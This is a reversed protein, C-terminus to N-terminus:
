YRMNIARSRDICFSSFFLVHVSPILMVTVLGEVTAEDLLEM